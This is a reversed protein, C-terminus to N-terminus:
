NVYHVQVAGWILDLGRGWTYSLTEPQSKATWLNLAPYTVNIKVHPTMPINRDREHTPCPTRTETPDGSINNPLVAHYWSEAQVGSHAHLIPKHTHLLLESGTPSDVRAWAARGSVTSRLRACCLLFWCCPFREAAILASTRCWRPFNGSMRVM